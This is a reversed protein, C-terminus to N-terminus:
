QWVRLAHCDIYAAASYPPGHAPCLETWQPRRISAPTRLPLVTRYHVPRPAPWPADRAAKPGYTCMGTTTEPVSNRAPGRRM